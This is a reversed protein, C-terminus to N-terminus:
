SNNLIKAGCVCFLVQVSQQCIDHAQKRRQKHCNGPHIRGYRVTLEATDGYRALQKVHGHARHETVARTIHPEAVAQADVTKVAHTHAMIGDAAGIDLVPADVCERLHGSTVDIGAVAVTEPPKRGSAVLELAYASVGSTRDLHDVSQMGCRVALAKEDTREVTQITKHWTCRTGYMHRKDVGAYCGRRVAHGVDGHHAIRNEECGAGAHHNEVVACGNEIVTGHGDVAHGHGGPPKIETGAVVAKDGEVDAGSLHLRKGAHVTIYDGVHGTARVANHVHRGVAGAHRSDVGRGVTDGLTIGMRRPAFTRQCAVSHISHARVAVPQQPHSVVLEAGRVREVRGVHEGGIGGSAEISGPTRHAHNQTAPRIRQEACAVADEDDVRSATVIGHSCHGMYALRAQAAIHYYRRSPVAAAEHYASVAPAGVDYVRAVAGDGVQRHRTLVIREAAAVHEAERRMGVATQPASRRGAEHAQHRVAAFPAPGVLVALQRLSIDVVYEEVALAVSPYTGLVAEGDVIGGAAGDAAAEERLPEEVAALELLHILIGAPAKVEQGLVSADVGAVHGHRVEAREVHGAAVLHLRAGEDLVVVAAHPQSRRVADEAALRTRGVPHLESAGVSYRRRQEDVACRHGVGVSAQPEAIGVAQKSHARVLGAVVHVVTREAEAQAIHEYVALAYARRAVCGGSGVAHATDAKRAMGSADRQLQRRQVEGVGHVQM